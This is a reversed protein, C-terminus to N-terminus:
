AHLYDTQQNIVQVHFSGYTGDQQVALDSGRLLVGVGGTIDAATFRVQPWILNVGYSGSAGQLNIQLNLDTQATVYDIETTDDFELDLSLSQRRRSREARTPKDAGGIAYILEDPIENTGEWRFGRVKANLSTGSSWSRGNWNGGINVDADGVRLYVETLETPRSTSPTTYSGSGIIRAGARVFGRRDGEVRLSPLMCGTWQRKYAGGPYDLVTFSPLTYDNDPQLIHVAADDSWSDGAADGSLGTFSTSTKGSFTAENGTAPNVLTGSSPWSSTDEVDLSTLPTGSGDQAGDTFTTPAPTITHTQYGSGPEDAPSENLNGLFYAFFIAAENPRLRPLEEDGESRRALIDQEDALEAESGVLDTSDQLEVKLQMPDGANRYTAAITAASDYSSEEVKSISRWGTFGRKTAM